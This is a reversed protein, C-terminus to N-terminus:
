VEFRYTDSSLTSSAGQSATEYQTSTPSASSRQGRSRQSHSSLSHTLRASPDDEDLSYFSLVDSVLSETRALAQMSDSDAKESSSSSPQVETMSTAKPLKSSASSSARQQQQQECRLNLKTHSGKHTTGTGMVGTKASDTASSVSRKRGPILPTYQKAASSFSRHYKPHKPTDSSNHSSSSRQTGYNPCFPLKAPEECSHPWEPPLLQDLILGFGGCGQAVLHDDHLISQGYGPDRLRSKLCPLAVNKRNVVDSGEPEFFGVGNANVGFFNCGGVCGCKGLRDSSIKTLPQPWLFWLRKTKNDHKQLFEHQIKQSGRQASSHGSIAGEVFIPGFRISGTEIWIDRHHAPELDARHLPFNSSIYQQVQVQKVLASVGHKTHLGHLNCASLRVPCLQLRLSSNRETVHVDVSDVLFRVLRYKVEEVTACLDDGKSNSCEKQNANHQCTKYPRPHKLVNEKDVALHAFTELCVFVNYLQEASIKGVLSGCQVEILWGYELTDSGLPRDLESFMAHGRFQLGSLLLHGQKNFDEEKGDIRQFFM